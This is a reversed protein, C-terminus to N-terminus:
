KGKKSKHAPESKDPAPAAEVAPDAVPSPTDCSSLGPAMVFSTLSEVKATVEELEDKSVSASALDAIQQSASARLAHAKALSEMFSNLGSNPTRGGRVGGINPIAPHGCVCVRITHVVETLEHLDGGAAASYMGKAYQRFDATRFWTGGCAECVLPENLGQQMRSYGTAQPPEGNPNEIRNLYQEIEPNLPM